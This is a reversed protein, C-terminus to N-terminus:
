DNFVDTIRIVYPYNYRNKDRVLFTKAPTVRYIKTIIPDGGNGVTELVEGENNENKGIYIAAHNCRSGDKCTNLRVFIDGIKLDDISNPYVRLWGPTRRNLTYILANTTGFEKARSQGTCQIWVWSALKACDVGINKNTNGWNPCTGICNWAGHNDYKVKGVVSLAIDRLIERSDRTPDCKPVSFADDSTNNKKVPAVMSSIMAGFILYIIVGILIWFGAKKTIKNVEEDEGRSTVLNNFANKINEGLKKIGDRIKKIIGLAKIAAAIPALVGTATLATLGLNAALPALKTAAFKLGEGLMGKAIAGFGEQFGKEAFMKLGNQAFNRISENGIKSIFQGGFNTFTKSLAGGTWGNIRDAWGLINNQTTNFNRMVESNGLVGMISDFSALERINTPQNLGLLKEKVLAYNQQLAKLQDPTTNKLLKITGELDTWAQNLDGSAGALVENRVNEIGPGTYFTDAVLEAQDRVAKLQDQNLKSNKFLFDKDRKEIAEKLEEQSLKSNQALTQIEMEDLFEKRRAERVEEIHKIEHKGMEEVIKRAEVDSIEVGSSKAVSKQLEKAADKKSKIDKNKIVKEAEKGISDELKKDGGLRKSSDEGVKKAKEVPDTKRFHDLKYALSKLSGEGGPDIGYKEKISKALVGGVDKIGGGSRQIEGIYKSAQRVDIPSEGNLQVIKKRDVAM